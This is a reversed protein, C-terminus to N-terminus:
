KQQQKAAEAELQQQSLWESTAAYDRAIWAANSEIREIAQKVAREAGPHAHSAFFAEVQQKSQLTTLNSLSSVIRSLSSSQTWKVLIAAWNSQLWTWTLQLGLRNAAVASILSPGDQARLTSLAYDLTRQLLEPETSSALAQLCRVAEESMTVQSHQYLLAEYGFLGGKAVVMSYVASRLDPSLVVSKSAAAGSSSSSASASKEEQEAVDKGGLAQGSALFAAYKQLGTEITRRDGYKGSVGIIKARLLSVTHEEDPKKDWGIQALIKSLLRNMFASFLAYTAPQPQLLVSLDALNSLLDAWVTYETETSYSEVLQLLQVTSLLGCRALAFADSQVGLRDAPSLLPDREAVAKCLAAFMKPPYRVRYMGLQGANLKVWFNSADSAKEFGSAPLQVTLVGEKASFLQEGVAVGAGAKQGSVLFSVPVPWTEATKAPGDQLFRSQTVKFSLVRSDGSDNEQLDLIPFGTQTTWANMISSVDIGKEKSMAAWLDSTLANKYAFQKCYAVTARRFPEAGM